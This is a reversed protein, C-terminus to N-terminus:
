SRGKSDWPASAPGCQHSDKLAQYAGPENPLPAYKGCRTCAVKPQHRHTVVFFQGASPTPGGRDPRPGETSDGM